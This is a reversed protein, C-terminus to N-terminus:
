RWSRAPASCHESSASSTSLISGHMCRRGVCPRTSCRTPYRRSNGASWREATSTIGLEHAIATATGPHDGTIMIPRIGAAIARAVAERAEPRPPDIMGVLGLFVLDHELSDDAGRALADLPLSRFAVGLTRIARSALEENAARIASRRAETLPRAATGVLEHSCRAELVDPAGKTFVILRQQRQADHHVTSMLKRESSFPVEDVREFRADLADPELGAKRAAVLLAGETPDGQISWRGDHEGLSANNALEAARLAREVESRLAPDLLPHGDQEVDGEPVYGTGSLDIRGSATVVTRVTMENRTLTGTKDSAIVTASGLTEVVPLKRVIARRRAMRQVGLALVATM